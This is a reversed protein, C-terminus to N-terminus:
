PSCHGIGHVRNVSILQTFRPDDDCVSSSSTGVVTVCVVEVVVRASNISFDRSSGCMLKFNPVKM